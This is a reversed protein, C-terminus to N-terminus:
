YRVRSRTEAAQQCEISHRQEILDSGQLEVLRIILKIRDLSRLNMM